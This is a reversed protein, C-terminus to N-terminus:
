PGESIVVTAETTSSNYTDSGPFTVQVPYAGPPGKLRTHAVAKGFEDTIAEMVEGRFTFILPQAPLPEGSSDEFTASLNATRGVAGHTDGDYTITTTPDFDRPGFYVPSTMAVMALRNECYTNRSDREDGFLENSMDCLPQLLRRAEIGDPYFVEARVWTSDAPSDFTAIYNPSTVTETALARGGNTVLRLTAGPAGEVNVELRSGPAVSDGIISEYVGNGDGDARLFARAGGLVPPQNSVSTRNAKLGAIISDASRDAACVWTTPQGVGQVATTARWHNDSGGTAAVRYGSDLFEDYMKVPFEHDNTAPFPPEYFWPGINWVELSDPAFGPYEYNGSDDHWEMDSPHNIQFAGGDARLQTAVEPASLNTDYIRTAGHMQAHGAGAVGNEYDPVWILSDGGPVQNSLGWGSEYLGVGTAASDRALYADINNHDSIAIFDLGRSEAIAGQQGPTWGLTYFEDPGTGPDDPGGYSDHSYVTHVHFDGALWTCGPEEARGSSPVVAAILGAFLAAALAFRPGRLTHTRSGAL